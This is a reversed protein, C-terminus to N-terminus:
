APDGCGATPATIQQGVLAVTAHADRAAPANATIDTALAAGVASVARSFAQAPDAAPEARCYRAILAPRRETGAFLTFQVQVVAQTSGGASVLEFREISGDLWFAALGRTDPPLVADAVRDAQLVRGIVSALAAPPGDEWVLTASPRAEGGTDLYVLHRDALDGHARFPLLQLEGPLGPRLPTAQAVAVADLRLYREPPPASCSAAVLAALARLVRAADRASPM